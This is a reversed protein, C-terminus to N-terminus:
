RSTVAALEPFLVNVTVIHSSHHTHIDGLSPYVAAAGQFSQSATYPTHTIVVRMGAHLAATLGIHSDEIVVCDTPQVALKDRAVNYIMPHPKKKSVVDGALILDFNALRKEGLLTHLVLQVAQANAASCIALKLGRQHAEDMLRLVGPRVSAHGDTILKKYLLTKENHLHNIFAHRQQQVAPHNPPKADPWGYTDFYWRMKEKGGGITNQLM